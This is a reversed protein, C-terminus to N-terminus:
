KGGKALIKRAYGCSASVELGKDRAYEAAATVLIEGLGRGGGDDIWHLFTPSNLPICIFVINSNPM